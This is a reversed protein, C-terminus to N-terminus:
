TETSVSKYAMKVLNFEIRESVPLWGLNTVDNETTYKQLVRQLQQILYKPINAFVVNGYDSKRLVLSEALNKRINYHLKTILTEYDVADSAKSYGTM